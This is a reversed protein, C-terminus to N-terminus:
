CSALSAPVSSAALFLLVKWVLRQSLYALNTNTKSVVSRVRHGQSEGTNVADGFVGYKPLRSGVVDSIVPGTHFGVRIQLYGRSPDDVDILTEGAAKVAEIAFLACRKVHDAKQDTVLNTIAMYADGITECKFIEYKSDRSLDDLKQYLRDLFNCVKQPTSMESIKTFGVIDSFFIQLFL